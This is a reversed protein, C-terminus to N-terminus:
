VVKYILVNITQTQLFHFEAQLLRSLYLHLRARGDRLSM